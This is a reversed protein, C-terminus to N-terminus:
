CRGEFKLAIDQADMADMTLLHQVLKPCLPDAYQICPIQAEFEPLTETVYDPFHWGVDTHHVSVMDPAEHHHTYCHTFSEMMLTVYM